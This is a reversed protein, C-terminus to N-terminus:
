PCNSSQPTVSVSLNGSYNGAITAYRLDFQMKVGAKVLVTKEDGDNIQQFNVVEPKAVGLISNPNSGTTFSNERLTYCVQVPLQDKAVRMQWIEPLERTIIFNFQPTAILNQENTVTESISADIIDSQKVATFTLTKPISLENIKTPDLTPLSQALAQPQPLAFLVVVM